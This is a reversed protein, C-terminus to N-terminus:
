LIWLQNTARCGSTLVYGELKRGALYKRSGALRNEFADAMAVLRVNKASRLCDEAAGVFDRRTLGARDTM